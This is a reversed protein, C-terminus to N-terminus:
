PSADLYVQREETRRRVLGAVVRGGAKNWMLFADAAGEYDGEKHLQCVTSKAFGGTGVNYALSVMADFQGQTTDAGDLAAEVKPGYNNDLDDSLMQDAEEQTITQGEYVGEIHGYGITWVGVIDQYAELRCGENREILERGAPSVNM